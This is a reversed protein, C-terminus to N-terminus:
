TSIVNYPGSALAVEFDLTSEKQIEYDSMTRGDELQMGAFTLRQQDAPIVDVNLIKAKVNGVTDSPKVTLTVTSGHKSKVYVPYHKQLMLVAGQGIDYWDLSKSGFRLLLPGFYLLQDQTSISVYQSINLSISLYQSIDLSISLYQSIHRRDEMPVGDIGYIERKVDNITDSAKVFLWTTPIHGEITIQFFDDAGAQRANSCVACQRHRMASMLCMSHDCTFHRRIETCMHSVCAM